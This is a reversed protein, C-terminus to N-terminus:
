NETYYLAPIIPTYNLSLNKGGITLLILESAVDKTYAAHITFFGTDNKTIRTIGVGDNTIKATSIATDLTM